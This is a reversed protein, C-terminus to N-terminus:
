NRRLWVDDLWSTPVGTPGFPDYEYTSALRSEDGYEQDERIERVGVPLVLGARAAERRVIVSERIYADPTDTEWLKLSVVVTWTLLCALLVVGIAVFLASM